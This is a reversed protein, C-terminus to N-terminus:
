NVTWSGDPNLTFRDEMTPMWLRLHERPIGSDKYFPLVIWLASSLALARIATRRMRHLTKDLWEVDRPPDLALPSLQGRTAKMGRWTPLPEGDFNMDRMWMDHVVRNREVGAANVAVFVQEAKARFDDDVDAKVMMLRCHEVVTKTSTSTNVLYIGLGPTALHKYASRIHLDILVHARAIRGIRLDLEDDDVPTTMAALTRTREATTAATLHRAGLDSM